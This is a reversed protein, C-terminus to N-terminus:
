RGLASGFTLALVLVFSVTYLITSSVFYNAAIAWGFLRIPRQANRMAIVPDWNEWEGDTLKTPAEEYSRLRMFLLEYYSFTIMVLVV